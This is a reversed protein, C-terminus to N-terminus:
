GPCGLRPKHMHGLVRIGLSEEGLVRAGLVLALVPLDEQLRQHLSSLVEVGSGPCALTALGFELLQIVCNLHGGQPQSICLCVDLREAREEM